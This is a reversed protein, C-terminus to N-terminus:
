SVLAAPVVNAPRLTSPRGIRSPGDGFVRMSSGPTPYTTSFSCFDLTVSVEAARRTLPIVATTVWTLRSPKSM